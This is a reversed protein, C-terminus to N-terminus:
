TAFMSVWREIQVGVFFRPSIKRTRLLAVQPYRMKFGRPCEAVPSVGGRMSCDKESSTAREAGICNLENPTLEDANLM